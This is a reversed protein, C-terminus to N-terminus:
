FFDWAVVENHHAEPIATIQDPRVTSHAIQFPARNVGFSIFPAAVVVWRAFSGRM